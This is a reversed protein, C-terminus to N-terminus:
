VKNARIREIFNDAIEGAEESLQKNYMNNFPDSFGHKGSLVHIDVNTRILSPVLEKVDFSEEEAPFFLLVPCKPMVDRYDRIRSGYYGIVGDCINRETSCLWAITAGISFGLLFVQNYQMRAQKILEKVEQFASEFGINNIFFQYAEAEENYCFPQEVNILNPCIVDYGKKDFHNSVKKIHRNIGYIEHLIIIVTESNNKIAPM